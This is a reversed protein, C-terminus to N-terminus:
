QSANAHVDFDPAVDIEFHDGLKQWKLEDELRLHILRSSANFRFFDVVAENRARYFDTYHGRKGKLDMLNDIKRSYVAQTDGYESYFDSLRNYLCCHLYTNGLTRGSSHRAMSDFWDDPDREFLVFRAAPFRHYLQKYFGGCWWPDDEFVQHSRFDSSSFIKEVEGNFWLNTWENKSQVGYTAVEYGHMGFFRGVSTTGTRQISICFIKNGLLAKGKAKAREIRNKLKRAVQLPSRM